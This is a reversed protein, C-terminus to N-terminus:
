VGEPTWMEITTKTRPNNFTAALVWDKFEGLVGLDHAESMVRDVDSPRLQERTDAALNLIGQLNVKM